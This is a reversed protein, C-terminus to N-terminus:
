TNSSACWKTHPERLGSRDDRAALQGSKTFLLASWPKVVRAPLPALREAVAYVAASSVGAAAGVILVDSLGIVAQAIQALSYWGTAATFAQPHCPRLPAALSPVM